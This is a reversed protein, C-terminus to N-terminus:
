KKLIVTLGLDELENFIQTAIDKKEIFIECKGTSHVLHACQTAQFYNHGCIERLSQIVHDFSNIEDNM